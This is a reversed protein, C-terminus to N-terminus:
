RNNSRNSRTPRLTKKIVHKLQTVAGNFIHHVPESQADGDADKQRMQEALKVTNLLRTQQRRLSNQEDAAEQAKQTTYGWDDGHSEAMTDRQKGTLTCVRKFSERKLRKKPQDGRTAEIISTSARKRSSGAFCLTCLLESSSRDCENPDVRARCALNSCVLCEYHYLKGQFPVSHLKRKGSCRCHIAACQQNSGLGDLILDDAVIWVTKGKRLGGGIKKTDFIEVLALPEIKVRTDWVAKIAATEKHAKKKGTAAPLDLQKMIVQRERKTLDNPLDDGFGVDIRLVKGTGTVSRGGHVTHAGSKIKVCRGAVSIAHHVRTSGGVLEEMPRPTIPRFKDQPIYGAELLQISRMLLDQYHFIKFTNKWKKSTKPKEHPHQLMSDLQDLIPQAHRAIATYDKKYQVGFAGSNKVNDNQTEIVEDDAQFSHRTPQFRQQELQKLSNPAGNVQQEISHQFIPRYMSGGNLTVVHNGRVQCVETILEPHYFHISYRWLLVLKYMRFVHYKERFYEDATSSSQFWGGVKKLLFNMNVTGDQRNVVDTWKFSKNELLSIFASMIHAGAHNFISQFATGIDMNCSKANIHHSGNGRREAAGGTMDSRKLSMVIMECIAHLDGYQLHQASLKKHVRTALDRVAVDDDTMMTVVKDKLSRVLMHSYGDCVLIGHVKSDKWEPLIDDMMLLLEELKAEDELCLKAFVDGARDLCAKPIYDRVTAETQLDVNPFKLKKRKQQSRLAKVFAQVPKATQNCLGLMIDDADTDHLMAEMVQQILIAQIINMGEAELEVRTALRSSMDPLPPTMRPFSDSTRVHTHIVRTSDILFAQPGIDMNGRQKSLNTSQLGFEYLVMTMKNVASHVEGASRNPDGRKTGTAVNDFITKVATSNEISAAFKNELLENMLSAARKVHQKITKMHLASGPLESSLAKGQLGKRLKHLSMWEKFGAGVGRQGVALMQILILGADYCRRERTSVFGSPDDDDVNDIGVDKDDIDKNNGTSSNDEGVINTNTSRGTQGATLIKSTRGASIIRSLLLAVPGSAACIQEITDLLNISLTKGNAILNRVYEELTPFHEDIIKYVEDLVSGSEMITQIQTESNELWESYKKTALFLKETGEVASKWIAQINDTSAMSGMFTLDDETINLDSMDPGGLQLARRAYFALVGDTTMFSRVSIKGGAKGASQQKQMGIGRRMLIMKIEPFLIALHRFNINVTISLEPSKDSSVLRSGTKDGDVRSLLVEISLSGPIEDRRGHASLTSNKKLEFETGSHRVASLLVSMLKPDKNKNLRRERATPPIYFTNDTEPKKVFLLFSPFVLFKAEKLSRDARTSGITLADVVERLRLRKKMDNKVEMTKKRETELGTPTHIGKRRNKRGIKTTIVKAATTAARLLNENKTPTKSYKPRKNKKKNQAPALLKHKRTNATTPTLAVPPATSTTPQM